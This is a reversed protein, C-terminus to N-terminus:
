TLHKLLWDIEDPSGPPAVGCRVVCEIGVADMKQKLVHGFTPHHIGTNENTEPTTPVNEQTYTLYAPPDGPIVFNIPATREMIRAKAPPPDEAEDEQLQFLQILAPHKYAPGMIHRRIFRTDYSTQGNRVLMCSLRTSQRAIPDSSSPDSMDPHFGIWLSIGAGASGGSAAIHHPDFGWESARTRLFQIARAGDQFSAPAPAHQSLRYNIAAVSLGAGLWRELQALPLARKDGGRFGGGHIFVILPTLTGPRRPVARWVDLVNREHPGYPVGAHAPPPLPPPEPRVM